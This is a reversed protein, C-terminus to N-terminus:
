SSDFVCVAVIIPHHSICLHWCMMRCSGHLSPIVMRQMLPQFMFAQRLGTATTSSIQLSVILVSRWSITSTVSISSVLLPSLSILQIAVITFVSRPFGLIDVTGNDDPMDAMTNPGSLLGVM